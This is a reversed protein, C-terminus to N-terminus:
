KNFQKKYSEPLFPTGVSRFVGDKVVYLQLTDVGERDTKSFTVPGVTTFPTYAGPGNMALLEEYLAQKTIEKNKAKVRRMAEIAVQTVMMGNTYNHSNATKDDRGYKKAIAVQQEALDKHESTLKYSTVWFFGNAAAGALDILDNGGTYHAGLFTLKGPEGFEKSTLGLRQADNLITAVPSQVTHCLVYQVGKSQLRQLMATNDLDQGHEVVEVLEMKLESGLAKKLDDVPARGFASPHVFMAAKPVGGGKHNKILYEALAFCQGSYSSIPLFIYTSEDLNGRHFSAPLTPMKEEDFDRKLGLTSGTSYNLYIVIGQGLFEEFNRKTVDTKYQDDRIIMEVTDGGLLKQDNAYKAYDEMGKAYPAGADSTPGTIALSSAVRYAKAQADAALALSVVAMMLVVAFGKKM